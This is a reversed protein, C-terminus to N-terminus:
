GIVPLFMQYLLYLFILFHPFVGFFLYSVLLSDYLCDNFHTTIFIYQIKTNSDNKSLEFATSPSGTTWDVVAGSCIQRVKGERVSDERFVM